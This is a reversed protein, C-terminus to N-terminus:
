RWGQYPHISRIFVFQDYVTCTAYLTEKRLREVYSFGESTQFTNENINFIGDFTEVCDHITLIIVEGSIAKLRTPLM